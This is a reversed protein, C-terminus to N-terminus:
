SMTYHFCPPLVLGDFAVHLSVQMGPNYLATMGVASEDTNEKTLVPPVESLDSIFCMLGM